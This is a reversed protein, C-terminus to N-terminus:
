PNPLAAVQVLPADCVTMRGAEVADEDLKVVGVPFHAGLLVPLVLPARPTRHLNLRVVFTQSLLPHTPPLGVARAEAQLRATGAPTLQDFTFFGFGRLMRPSWGDPAPAGATEGGLYVAVPGRAAESDASLAIRDSIAAFDAPSRGAIQCPRRGTIAALGELRRPNDPSLQETAHQDIVFGRLGLEEQRRPYAYVTRTALARAVADPQAVVVSIPKAKRRGGFVAARLLVDVTADEEVFTAEQPVLNLVTTIQRLTQRDHGRPRVYDDREENVRRSAALAPVLLLLLVGVARASVRGGLADLLECLGVGALWWVVVAVPAVAVAASMPTGSALGTAVAAIAAAGGVGQWTGRVGEGFAGLVALALALPGLLWGLTAGIAVLRAASPHPVVCETVTATSLPGALLWLPALLAAVLVVVFVATRRSRWAGTEPVLLAAAACVGFAAAEWPPALLAPFLPGLGVAVALALAIAISRTRRVVLDAFLALAATLVLFQLLDFLQGVRLDPRSRLAAISLLEFPGPCPSPDALEIAPGRLLVVAPGVLWPLTRRTAAILRAATSSPM